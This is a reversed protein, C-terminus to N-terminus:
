INSKYNICSKHRSLSRLGRHSRRRRLQGGLSSCVDEAQALVQETHRVEMMHGVVIDVVLEAAEVAVAFAVVAVM